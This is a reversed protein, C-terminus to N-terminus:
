DALINQWNSRAHLIRVVFLVDDRIQYVVIHEGATKIRVPPVIDPLEPAILPLDCLMACTQEIKDTYREAQDQGYVQFTYDWITVM